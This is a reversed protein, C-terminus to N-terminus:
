KEGRTDEVSVAKGRTCYRMSHTRRGTPVVTSTGTSASFRRFLGCSRDSDFRYNKVGGFILACGFFMDVVLVTIVVVFMCSSDGGNINM